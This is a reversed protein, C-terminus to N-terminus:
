LIGNFSRTSHCEEFRSCRVRSDQTDSDESDGCDETDSDTIDCYDETDSYDTASDETDSDNTDIVPVTKRKKKPRSSKEKNRRSRKKEGYDILGTINGHEDLDEENNNDTADPPRSKNVLPPKSTDDPVEEFTGLFKRRKYGNEDSMSIPIILLRNINKHCTFIM